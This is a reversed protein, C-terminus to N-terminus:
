HKPSLEKFLTSWNVNDVNTDSAQLRFLSVKGELVPIGKNKKDVLLFLGEGTKNLPFETVFSNYRPDVGVQEGLPILAVMIGPMEPAKNPELEVVMKQTKGHVSINFESVCNPAALFKKVSVHNNSDTLRITLMYLDMNDPSVLCLKDSNLDKAFGPTVIAGFLVVFSLCFVSVIKKM